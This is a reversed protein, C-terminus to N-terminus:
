RFSSGNAVHYQYFKLLFSSLSDAEQQNQASILPGVPNGEFDYGFIIFSGLFEQNTAVLADFVDDGKKTGQQEKAQKRLFIKLADRVVDDVSAKAQDTIPVVDSVTPVASLSEIGKKKKQLKPGDEKPGDSSPQTFM